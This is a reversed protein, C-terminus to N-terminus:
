LYAPIMGRLANCVMIENANVVQTITLNAERANISPDALIVSRMVGPLVGASLPPTLWPGNVDERILVSTRGGETVHGHQNIFLADFGGLEVAKHWAADYIERVSIKHRLLPNHSQMTLQQPTYQDQLIEHAWFLQVPGPLKEIISHSLSLQGAASLDIRVRHISDHALDAAAAQVMNQLVEDDFQIGLDRASNSLRELHQSWNTIRTLDSGRDFRITEFIGVGSPLSTLFAAKLQCEQYETDADSDITIGAGVGLVFSSSDSKPDHDMQLTRIPVSMAFDGNPDFWGLAGCYWGRSQDELAQIIEMSRKKPAGTVSGCPFVARLVDEIRLNARPKAQVTSTMQLVQGHQKVEFLAPVHVSGTLAIRGLDNRLLDVIMVNEAQNKPDNALESAQALTADATGKMPEAILTDGSRRIFLEPSQSLVAQHGDEIFAGYRGPQRERLRAYLALPSGYADGYVRYSHNIQYTDGATIWAQIRKIDETFRAHDISDHRNLIGSPTSEIALRDHLFADVAEKSLKSVEAFSWARLLPLPEPHKCAIGQWYYGLEYAFLAVVYQGQGLATEIGDFCTDLENFRNACWEQQVHQYLRSTPQERSSEVDDLLLM